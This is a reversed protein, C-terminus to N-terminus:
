TIFLKRAHLLQPGVLQNVITRIGLSAPAHPSESLPASNVVDDLNAAM